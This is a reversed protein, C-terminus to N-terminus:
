EPAEDVNGTNPFGTTLGDLISKYPNSYL